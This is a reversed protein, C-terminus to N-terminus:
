HGVKLNQECWTKAEEDSALKLSVIFLRTVTELDKGMERLTVHLQQLKALVKGEESSGEFHRTIIIRLMESIKRQSAESEFIVAEATEKSLRVAFVQSSAHPGSYSTKIKKRGM